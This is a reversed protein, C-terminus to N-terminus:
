RNWNVWGDGGAQVGAEGPLARRGWRAVVASTVAFTLGSQM